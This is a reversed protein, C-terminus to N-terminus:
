FIEVANGAVQHHDKDTAAQHLSEMLTAFTSVASASLAKKVHITQQDAAALAKLINYDSEALASEIIDEFPSMASLLVENARIAQSASVSPTAVILIAIALLRLRTIQM